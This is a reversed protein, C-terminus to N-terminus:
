DIILDQNEDDNDQQLNGGHGRNNLEIRILNGRNNNGQGVEQVQPITNNGERFRVHSKGTNRNNFLFLILIM